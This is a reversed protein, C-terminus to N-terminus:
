AAMPCDKKVSLRPIPASQSRQFSYQYSVPASLSAIQTVIRSVQTASIAPHDNKRCAKREPSGPVLSWTQDKDCQRINKICHAASSDPSRQEEQTHEKCRCGRDNGYKFIDNGKGHLQGSAAPLFDTIQM